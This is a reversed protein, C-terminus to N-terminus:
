RTPTFRYGVRFFVGSEAPRGPWHGGSKLGANLLLGKSWGRTVSLWLNAGGGTGHSPQNWAEVEGGLRISKWAAFSETAAGVSWLRGGPGNGQRTVLSFWRPGSVQGLKRSFVTEISIMGGDPTWDSTLIPLFRRGALHPLPLSAPEEGTWVQRAVSWLSLWAGPDVLNLWAQWRLRRYEAIVTSSSGTPTIGTEAHYKTNLQGLYDAVDGGGSWEGYFREPHSIPDPTNVLVYYSAYSRSRIFYLLQLPRMTSGAVLEREILTASRANSEVGGISMRIQDELSLSRPDYNTGSGFRTSGKFLADVTWPSGMRCSASSGFERARGAHGFAEHQLVVMFLAIPHDILLTWGIRLPIGVRGNLKLHSFVRGELDALFTSAALTLDAGTEISLHPDVSLTIPFPNGEAGLVQPPPKQAAQQGEDQEGGGVQAAAETNGSPILLM